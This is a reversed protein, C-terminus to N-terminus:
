KRRHQPVSVRCFVQSLFVPPLLFSWFPDCVCSTRRRTDMGMFVHRRGSVFSANLVKEPTADRCFVARGTQPRVALVSVSRAPGEGLLEDLQERSVTNAMLSLVFLAPLVVGLAGCLFSHLRVSRNYAM